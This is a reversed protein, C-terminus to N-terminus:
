RAKASPDQLYLLPEVAQYTTNFDVRRGHYFATNDKDPVVRGVLRVTQGMASPLDQYEGVGVGALIAAGLCGPEEAGVLELQHGLTDAIIQLWVALRSGGSQGTRIVRLNEGREHAIAQVADVCDAISYAVGEMVARALHASTHWHAIGLFGARANPNYFPSREGYLYPHFLLGDCGPPIEAVQSALRRYAASTEEDARPCLGM